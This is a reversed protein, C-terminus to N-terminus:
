DDKPLDILIGEGQLESMGQVQELSESYGHRLKVEFELALSPTIM